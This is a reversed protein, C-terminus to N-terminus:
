IKQLLDYYNEIGKLIINNKKIEFCVNNKNTDFSSLFEDITFNLIQIDLPIMELNSIVNKTTEKDDCILCLDFDSNKTNTKKSYSGFVLAIFFCSEEELKNSIIKFNKNKLLKEKREKEIKFIIENFNFNFNVQKLNGIKKVKIIKQKDLKKINLYTNKYDIKLNKSIENITFKNENNEILFEMIKYQLEKVM